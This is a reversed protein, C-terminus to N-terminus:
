GHYQPLFYLLSGESWCPLDIWLSTVDNGVINYCEQGYVIPIGGNCTIQLTSQIKAVVVTLWSEGDTLACSDLQKYEAGCEHIYVHTIRSKTLYLQVAIKWTKTSFLYIKMWGDANSNEPNIRVQIPSGEFNHRIRQNTM